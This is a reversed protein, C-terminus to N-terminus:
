SSQAEIYRMYNRDARRQLQEPTPKQYFFQGDFHWFGKRPMAFPTAHVTGDLSLYINESHTRPHQTDIVHPITSINQVFGSIYPYKSM